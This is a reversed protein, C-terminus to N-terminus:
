NAQGSVSFGVGNGDTIAEAPKGVDKRQNRLVSLSRRLDDDCPQTLKHACDLLATVLIEQTYAMSFGKSNRAAEELAEASFYDSGLKNLLALRQEYKPLTFRWVRDFRSPRHLLAPDLKGPENTTAIFLVGHVAKLGDLLNLFHALSIQRSAVLKDLDEFLVVAPAHRSALFLAHEIQYDEVDARGLVTIFKAQINAALVRLTRTKGSGPPGTFLLGRKHPIGLRQYQERSQFFQEVNQRIDDRLSEPLVVDDWGLPEIPIDDGNVVLIEAHSKARRTQAYRNLAEHFQRLAVNSKTAVYCVDSFGNGTPVSFTSFHLAQGNWGFEVIGKWWSGTMEREVDWPSGPSEHSRSPGTLEEELIEKLAIRHTITEPYQEQLCDLLFPLNQRKIAESPYEYVKWKDKQPHSEIFAQMRQDIFRAESM